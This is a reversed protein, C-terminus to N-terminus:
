CDWSEFIYVVVGRVTNFVKIDNTFREGTCDYLSHPTHEWYYEAYEKKDEEAIVEGPYLLKMWGGDMTYHECVIQGGYRVNREKEEEKVKQRLDHIYYKMSEQAKRLATKSSNKGIKRLVARAIVYDKENRTRRM